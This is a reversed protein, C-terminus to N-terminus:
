ARSSTAPARPAAAVADDGHRPLHLRGRVRRRLDAPQLAPRVRQRRRRRRERALLAALADRDSADVHPPPSAATAAGGVVARRGRELDLDAFTMREFFDRRRAVAAVAAGVGGTGVVLVRVAASIRSESAIAHRIPAPTASSPSRLRRAGSGSCGSAGRSRTPASPRSECRGPASPIRTACATFGVPSTSCPTRPLTRPLARAPGSSSGCTWVVEPSLARLLREVAAQDGAVAARAIGALTPDLRAHEDTYIAAPTRLNPM